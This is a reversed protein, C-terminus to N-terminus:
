RALALEIRRSTPRMPVDIDLVERVKAALAPITFPKEILDIEGAAVGVRVNEDDTYGTMFLIRLDPFRARAHEALVRGNMGPM